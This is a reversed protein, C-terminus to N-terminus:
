PFPGVGWRNKVDVATYSGTTITSGSPVWYSPKSSELDDMTEVHGDFFAANFKYSGTKQFPLNSGHRYAWVRPDFAGDGLTPSPGNGTVKERNWSRSNSNWPGPDAGESELDSSSASISVDPPTTSSSWRAGDAIYIKESPHKVSTIKPVYDQPVNCDDQTWYSFVKGPYGFCAATVYSPMVAGGWKAAAKDYEVAPAVLAYPVFAINNAPCQFSKYNSLQFFRDIRNKQAGTGDASENFKVGLSKGIPCMWDWPALGTDTFAATAAYFPQSSTSPKYVFQLGNRHTTWPYGPIWGANQSSYMLMGQGIVRINAACHVTQAAQRAKHLSPLLISILVGIIGIVVLLEVLTFADRLRLPNKHKM